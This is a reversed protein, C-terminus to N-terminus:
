KSIWKGRMIIGIDAGAVNKDSLVADKHSRSDAAVQNYILLSVNIIGALLLIVLPFIMAAEVFTSGSKTKM